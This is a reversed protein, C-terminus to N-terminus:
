LLDAGEIRKKELALLKHERSVYSLVHAAKYNDGRLLHHVETTNTRWESKMFMHGSIIALGWRSPDNKFTNKLWYTDEISPRGYKDQLAINVTEFDNIFFNNNSHEAIFIYSIKSLM